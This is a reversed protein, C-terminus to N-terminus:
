ASHIESFSERYFYRVNLESEIYDTMCTFTFNGRDTGNLGVPSTTIYSWEQKVKAGLSPLHDVEHGQQKVGLFSGGTHM